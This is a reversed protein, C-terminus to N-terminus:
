LNSQADEVAVVAKDGEQAFKIWSADGGGHKRRQFHIVLAEERTGPSIKSAVVSRALDDKSLKKLISRVSGM